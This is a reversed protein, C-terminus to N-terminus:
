SRPGTAAAWVAEARADAADIESRRRVLRRENNRVHDLTFGVNACGRLSAPNDAGVYTIAATAGEGRAIRLLQAMGDAMVGMRRSRVFTYAGELLVEDDALRAYRGPKYTDILHQDPARVLWQAYAPRGDPGDAAYLQRVGARCAWTRYMVELFDNGHVFPLEDAFGAYTTVDQPEMRVPLKAPRVHPLERLDARLGLFLKTYWAQEVVTRLTLSPGVRLVFSVPNPIGASVAM